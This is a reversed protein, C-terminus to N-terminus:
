AFTTNKVIVVFYITNKKDRFYLIASLFISSFPYAHMTWLWTAIM